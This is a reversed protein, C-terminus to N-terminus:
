QTLGLAQEGVSKYEPCLGITASAVVFPASDGGVYGAAASTADRVSGGGDLAACVSEGATGLTERDYYLGLGFGEVAGVYTAMQQVTFQRKPAPSSHQTAILVGLLILLVGGISAAFLLM